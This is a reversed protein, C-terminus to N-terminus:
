KQVKVYQSIKNLFYTSLIERTALLNSAYIAAVKGEEDEKEALSEGTALKNKGVEFHGQSIFSNTKPYFAMEIAGNEFTALLIMDTNEVQRIEQGHNQAIPINQSESNLIEQGPTTLNVTQMGSIRVTGGSNEVWCVKQGNMDSILQSGFCNGFKPINGSAIILERMRNTMDVREQIKEDLVNAESGSFVIGVCKSLDPIEASPDFAHFTRFRDDGKEFGLCRRMNEDLFNEGHELTKKGLDEMNIAELRDKDILDIDSSGMLGKFTSNVYLIFKGKPIEQEELTRRTREFVQNSEEITLKSCEKLTLEENNIKVKFNKDRWLRNVRVKKQERDADISEKPM